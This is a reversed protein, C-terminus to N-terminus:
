QQINHESLFTQWRTKAQKADEDSLPIYGVSKSLEAAHDLYFSVFARVTESELSKNNVYVFLPRSLPAYANSKVNELTPFIAGDGNDPNEDDVPLLKLKDKNHDYYALGFYGLALEDSSIGQVLVNDDESATYDGRSSKAEGCIVETFYDFTGSATGAGYLHIERDPWAPRLQNWKMVKGQAAPEWLKKLESVTIDKAWTNNPHVVLALGDYAIELELYKVGASGCSEVEEPRIPRSAGSLDIESRCFKKFGGGTGSAGVTVDVSPNAILFEEAAAENLPYVTSSGDVRIKGTLQEGKDSSDSGCSVIGLLIFASLAALFISQHRTAMTNTNFTHFDM